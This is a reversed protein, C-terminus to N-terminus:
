KTEDEVKESSEVLRYISREERERQLQLRRRFEVDVQASDWNPNESRIGALMRNRAMEFLEFGAHLREAPTMKSAQEIKSQRIARQSDDM